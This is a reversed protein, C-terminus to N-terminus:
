NFEFKRRSINLEKMSEIDRSKREVMEAIYWARGSRRRNAFVHYDYRREKKVLPIIRNWLAECFSKHNKPRIGVVLECDMAEAVKLMNILTINGEEERKEMATLASQSIGAKEAVYKVSYLQAQRARRLLSGYPDWPRAKYDLFAKLEDDVDVAKIRFKTKWLIFGFNLIDKEIEDKNQLNLITQKMIKGVQM